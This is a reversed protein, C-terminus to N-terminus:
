NNKINFIRIPRTAKQLKNADAMDTTFHKNLYRSNNILCCKLVYKLVVLKLLACACYPIIGKWTISHKGHSFCFRQFRYFGREQAYWFKCYCLCTFCSPCNQAKLKWLVSQSGHTHDRGYKRTQCTQCAQVLLLWYWNLHGGITKHSWANQHYLCWSYFRNKINWKHSSRQLITTVICM